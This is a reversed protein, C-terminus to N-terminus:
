NSILMGDEGLTKCSPTAKGWVAKASGYPPSTHEGACYIKMVKTMRDM